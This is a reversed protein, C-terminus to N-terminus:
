QSNLGALTDHPIDGTEVEEEPLSMCNLKCLCCTQNDRFWGDICTSHYAHLCPLVRVKTEESYKELCISCDEAVGFPAVERYLRLPYLADIRPQPIGISPQIYSRRFSTHFCGSSIGLALM